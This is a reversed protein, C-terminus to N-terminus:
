VRVQAAGGPGAPDYPEEGLREGAEDTSGRAGGTAGSGDFVSAIAGILMMVAAATFVVVLGSHFPQSILHPFFQQGTLTDVNAKPLTTLVGTPGLLAGIPNVGLFAAFLSGVPPLNGVQTAVDAPVGQARLGSTLTTPLSSALGAVMLSFFIGISLSTGANFFTGRMGSASGRQRAPVSNM